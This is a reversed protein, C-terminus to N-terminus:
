DPEVLSQKCYPCESSLHFWLPMASSVFFRNGCAPCRAKWAQLVLWGAAAFIAIGAVDLADMDIRGAFILFEIIWWLGLLACLVIIARRLGRIRALTPLEGAPIM